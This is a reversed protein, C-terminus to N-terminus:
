RVRLNSRLKEPLAKAEASSLKAISQPFLQVVSGTVRDVVKMDLDQASCILDSGRVRTMLLRGPLDISTVGNNSGFLSLRYVDGTKTGLYVTNDDAPTWGQWDRERFCDGAALRPGFAKGTEPAQAAAPMALGALLGAAVLGSLSKRQKHM